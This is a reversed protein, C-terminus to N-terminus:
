KCCGFLRRWWPCYKTIETKKYSYDLTISDIFTNEYVGRGQISITASLATDQYTENVSFTDLTIIKEKTIVVTDNQYITDYIVNNTTDHKTKWKIMPKDIYVTDRIIKETVMPTSDIESQLEKITSCQQLLTSLLLGIIVATVIHAINHYLSKM